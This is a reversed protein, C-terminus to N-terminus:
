KGEGELRSELSDVASEKKSDVASKSDLIRLGLILCYLGVIGLRETGPFFDVFLLILVSVVLNFMGFAKAFNIM